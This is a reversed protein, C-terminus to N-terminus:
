YRKNTRSRSKSRSRSRSRTRTRSRGRKNTKSNKKYRYKKSKKKSGGMGMGMGLRELCLLRAEDKQDKTLNLFTVQTKYDPELIEGKELQEELLVFNCQRDYLPLAALAAGMAAQAAAARAADAQAAAQAAAANRDYAADEEVAFALMDDADAPPQSFLPSSPRYSAHMEKEGPLLQENQFAPNM